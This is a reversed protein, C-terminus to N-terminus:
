AASADRCAIDLRKVLKALGQRSLGLEGAAAVPRGGNRVLAAHVFRREFALRAVALTQPQEDACARVAAPLAGAGVVGRRPAAVVLRAVVNQLERVNGPWRNAGCRM